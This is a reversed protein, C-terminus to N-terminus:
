EGLAERTLQQFHGILQESRGMLWGHELGGSAIGRHVGEVLVRDEKGVQNDFAMLEDIWAQDVDVGFFYDLFRYTRDPTVPVMPGISLNPRGPFINVGLNPWLFHFQSRPLKGDLHMTTGGGDRVPGRQSSLRGETSLAYAEASVDIMSALQPHSRFLM